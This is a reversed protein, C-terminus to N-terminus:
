ISGTEHESNAINRTSLFLGNMVQIADNNQIVGMVEEAEEETLLEVIEDKTDIGTLWLPGVIVDLPSLGAADNNIVASAPLDDRKGQAICWLLGKQHNSTQYEFHELEQNGCCKLLFNPVNNVVADSAPGIGM